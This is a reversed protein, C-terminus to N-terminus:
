HHQHHRRDDAQNGCPRNQEPLFAHPPASLVEHTELEPRHVHAVVCGALARAWRLWNISELTGMCFISAMPSRRMMGKPTTSRELPSSSSGWSMLTSRPSILM